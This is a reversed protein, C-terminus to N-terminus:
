PTLSTAIPRKRLEPLLKYDFEPLLHKRVLKHLKKTDAVGFYLAFGKKKKNYVRSRVAFNNQIARAATQAEEKSVCGLYLYSNRDKAYYYGDDMYWVALSLAETLLTDLNSPIKKQGSEYFRKRWSGLVPSASSQYRVYRYIRKTKPHMREISSPKGQFLRPFIGAKWLLYRQQKESHELRLRANKEGTKQLYADGLVTGILVAEQRKTLRM